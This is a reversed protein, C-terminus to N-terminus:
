REGGKPIEIHDVDKKRLVTGLLYLGGSVLVTIIPPPLYAEPLIRFDFLLEVVGGAILAFVAVANVKEFGKKQIEMRPLVYAEVCMVGIIPICFANFFYMINAYQQLDIIAALVSAIIGLFLATMWRKAKPFIESLALSCSYLNNDNSTWAGLLVLLFGVVGGAMVLATGLEASGTYMGVIIASIPQIAAVPLTLCFLAKANDGFGKSFRMVDPSIVVGMAMGGVVMSIASAFGMSTAIPTQAVADSFSLPSVVASKMAMFIMVGFTYIVVPSSLAEIGRYGFIATLIMLLGGIFSILAIDGYGVLAVMSEGFARAQIAFWGFGCIAVVLSIIHSGINGFSARSAMYTSLGTKTGISGQILMLFLFISIGALDAIVAKWFSLGGILLLGEIISPICIYVGIWVIGISWWSKKAESPVPERPYDEGRDLFREVREGINM